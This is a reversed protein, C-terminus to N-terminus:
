VRDTTVSLTASSFIQFTSVPDSCCFRKKTMVFGPATMRHFYVGTAVRSGTNNRGNWTARKEGAAQLMMTGYERARFVSGVM